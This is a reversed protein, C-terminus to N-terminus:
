SDDDSSTGDFVEIEPDWEEIGVDWRGHFTIKDHLFQPFAERITHRENDNITGLFDLTELRRAGHAFRSLHGKIHSDDFLVVVLRHCGSSCTANELNIQIRRMDSRLQTLRVLLSIFAKQIASTVQNHLHLVTNIEGESDPGLHYDIFGEIGPYACPIIGRRDFTLSISRLHTSAEPESYGPIRRLSHALNDGGLWSNVVPLIFDNKSLYLELAERRIQRNVGFLSVEARVDRPRLFRMDRAKLMEQYPKIIRVEGVVVCLEYVVNRLERPLGLLDFAKGYNPERQSAQLQTNSRLAQLEVRLAAIEDQLRQVTGTNPPSHRNTRLDEM